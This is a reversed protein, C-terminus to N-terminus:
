RCAPGCRPFQALAWEASTSVHYWARSGASLLVDRATGLGAIDSIGSEPRDVRIEGSADTASLASLHENTLIQRFETAYPELGPHRTFFEALRRAFDRREYPAANDVCEALVVRAEALHEPSVVRQAAVDGGAATEPGHQGRSGFEEEGPKEGDLLATALLFHAEPDHAHQGSYMRALALRTRAPLPPDSSTLSARLRGADTGLEYATRFGAEADQSEAAFHLVGRHLRLWPYEPHEAGTRDFVLVTDHHTLDGAHAVAFDLGAQWSREALWDRLLRAKEAETVERALNEFVSEIGNARVAQLLRLRNELLGTGPNGDILHELVAEAEDTLLLDAHDELSARSIAPVMIEAWSAVTQFLRGDDAPYRLWVPLPGQRGAAWARDFSPADQRRLRCLCGRAQGRTSRDTVEEAARTAGNLDNIAAGLDGQGAPSVHRMGRALLVPGIVERTGAFRALMDSFLGAAEDRRDAQDLLGALAGLQGALKGELAAPVSAAPDQHLIIAERAVQLSEDVRGASYLCDALAGLAGASYPLEALSSDAASRYIDVSQRARTVAEDARGADVLLMALSQLSGALDPAAAEGLGQYLDVAETVARLAEDAQGAGNLFAALNTLATALGNRYTANAPTLQRFEEVAEGAVSLKEDQLDAASLYIALNALTQARDFRYAAPEAEAISRHISLAERVLRLADELQGGRSWAAASLGTLALALDPRYLQPNEAVLWRCVDVAEGWVALSRETNDAVDLLAALARLSRALAARYGAASDEQTLQRLLAVAEDASALSQGPQGASYQLNATICLSWALDAQYADGHRRPLSRFIAVAEDAADRARPPRQQAVALAALSKALSPRHVLPDAAALERDIAVATKAAKVAKKYRPGGSLLTAQDRLAVALYERYEAPDATALARCLTVAEDALAETEAWVRVKGRAGALRVLSIALAARFAGPHDANLKRSRGVAESACEIAEAWRGRGSLRVSLRNLRTVLEAERAPDDRVQERLGEVALETVGIAHDQYWRPLGLTLGQDLAIAGETPKSVLMAVVVANFLEVSFQTKANIDLSRVYFRHLREDLARSLQDKVAPDDTAARTAVTLARALQRDSAADLAAPLLGPYRGLVDAVLVEGLSDPEIPAIRLQGDAAPGPYLEALWRAVAILRLESEDAFHPILRAVALAEEEGEATLLAAVAVANWRDERELELDRWHDVRRWHLAEHEVLLARLLSTESLADVDMSASQSQLYAAILVYLPRAFHPARLSPVPRGGGPGDADAPTGSGFRAAFAASARRFLEIRDVTADEADLRSVPARRLLDALEADREENFKAVLEEHTACDRVLLLILATPRPARAAFEEVLRAVFRPRTDADDVVLLLRGPWEALSRINDKDASAPVLGTSWGLQEAEQCAQIALRTKGSGGSGAVFWLGVSAGHTAQQGRWAALDDLLRERGTFEILQYQPNLLSVPPIEDNAAPARVVTRKLGLRGRSGDREAARVQQEELAAQWRPDGRHFERNVAAVEPVAAALETAPVAFGGLDTTTGRSAEIVGTVVGAALDLLPSGSYGRRVQGRKLKYLTDPGDRVESEFETSVGTLVPVGKKYEDTYGTLYLVSDPGGLVPSGAALRVCPHPWAAGEAGLDILALDPLPYLKRGTASEFPPSAGAVEGPVPSHGPWRVFLPAVGLVVHACTVVRGPAVFFGTGLLRGAADDIRVVCDRLLTILPNPDRESTV